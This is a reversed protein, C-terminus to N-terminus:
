LVTRLWQKVINFLEDLNVPTHQQYINLLYRGTGSTFDNTKGTNDLFKLWEEGFLKDPNQHPFKLRAVRKLLITIEALTNKNNVTSSQQIHNLLQYVEQKLKGARVLWILYLGLIMITLLTGALIYWGVALPFVSVQAPLHLPKLKDLINTVM